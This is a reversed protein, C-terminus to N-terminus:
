WCALRKHKGVLVAGAGTAVVVVVVVAATATAGGGFHPPRMWVM